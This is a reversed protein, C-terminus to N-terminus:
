LLSIEMNECLKKSEAHGGRGPGQTEKTISTTTYDTNFSYKNVVSDLQNRQVNNMMFTKGNVERLTM